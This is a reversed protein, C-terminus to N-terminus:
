APPFAAEFQAATLIVTGNARKIVAATMGGSFTNGGGNVITGAAQLHALTMTNPITLLWGGATADFHNDKLYFARAYEEEAMSFIAGAGANLVENGELYFASNSNRINTFVGTVAAAQVTWGCNKLGLKWLAPTTACSFAQQPEGLADFRTNEFWVNMEPGSGGGLFVSNTCTIQYDAPNGTANIDVLTNRGGVSYSAAPAAPPTLGHHAMITRFPDIQWIRDYAISGLTGVGGTHSYATRVAPWVTPNLPKGDWTLYPAGNNVLREGRHNGVLHGTGAYYFVLPIGGACGNYVNDLAANGERSFGAYGEGHYGCAIFENRRSTFGRAYRNRVGYGEGDSTAPAFFYRGGEWSGGIYSTDSSSQINACARGDSYVALEGVTAADPSSGPPPQMWVIKLADDWGWEGATVAGFSPNEPLFGTWPAVQELTAGSTALWEAWAPTTFDMGSVSGDLDQTLNYALFRPKVALPAYFRDGDQTWTLRQAASITSKGGARDGTVVIDSPWIGAFAPLPEAPLSYHEVYDGPQVVAAAPTFTAFPTEISRGNNGDDGLVSHIVFNPGLSAGGTGVGGATGHPFFGM